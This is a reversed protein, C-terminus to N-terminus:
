GRRTAPRSVRRARGRRGAGARRARPLATLATPDLVGAPIPLCRRGPSRILRSCCGRGCDASARSRAADRGAARGDRGALAAGNEAAARPVHEVLEDLTAGDPWPRWDAGAVAARTDDTTPPRRGRRSRCRAASSAFRCPSGRGRRAARRAAVAAGLLWLPDAIRAEAGPARTAPCAVAARAPDAGAPDQLDAVLTEPLASNAIMEVPKGTYQTMDESRSSRCRSTAPSSRRAELLRPLVARGAAVLQAHVARAPRAGEGALRELTVMGSRRSTSRRSSSRACRTPRGAAATPRSRASLIAQPPRASASDRARRARHAGPRTPPREARGEARTAGAPGRGLTSRGARCM